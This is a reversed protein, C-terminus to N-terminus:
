EILWIWKNSLQIAAQGTRQHRGRHEEQRVGPPEVLTEELMGCHRWREVNGGFVPIEWLCALHEGPLPTAHHCGHSSPPIEKKKREKKEKQKNRYRHLNNNNPAKSVFMHFLIIVLSLSLLQPSDTEPVLSTSTTSPM